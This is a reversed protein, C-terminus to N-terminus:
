WDGSAGGGGSDGGGFGGWSSSSSSSSSSSLSSSSYYSNRRRRDEEEQEERRRRAREEEERKRRRKLEEADIDSQAKRALKECQDVLSNYSNYSELLSSTAKFALLTLLFTKIATKTSSSVDSQTLLRSLRLNQAQLTSGSNNLTSIMQRHNRNMTEVSEVYRNLSSESSEVMRYATQIKDLNNFSKEVQNFSQYSSKLSTSYRSIDELKYTESEFRKMLNSVKTDVSNSSFDGISVYRVFQNITDMRHNLLSLEKNVLALTKNLFPSDSKPDWMVNLKSSVSINLEKEKSSVQNYVRQLESTKNSLNTVLTCLDKSSRLTGLSTNYNLNLDYKDKSSRILDTNAVIPDLNFRKLTQNVSDVEQLYATVKRNKEIEFKKQEEIKNKFRIFLVIFIILSIIGLIVYLTTSWFNSWYEQREQELRQTYAVRDTWSSTGLHSTVQTVFDDIGKYYNGEKFNPKFNSNGFSFAQGDSLYAELGYGTEIRWKRENPAIVILLGNNRDAKGVGWTKFLQNSFSEIDKGNLTDVLAFSIEIDTQKEFTSIKSNLQSEQETTLINAYDNVWNTAVLGSQGLLLQPILFLLILFRKM